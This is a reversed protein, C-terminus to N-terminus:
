FRRSDIVMCSPTVELLILDQVLLRRFGCVGLDRRGPIVSWLTSDVATGRYDLQATHLQQMSYYEVAGCLLVTASVELHNQRLDYCRGLSLRMGLAAM